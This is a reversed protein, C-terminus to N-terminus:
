ETKQRNLECYQATQKQRCLRYGVFQGFKSEPLTINLSTPPPPVVWIDVVTTGASLNEITRFSGRSLDIARKTWAEPGYDNVRCIVTRGNRRNTVRLHTGRPFTTSACTLADPEPLGLAYWSAIGSQDAAGPQKVTVTPAPAIETVRTNPRSDLQVNITPRTTAIAFALTGSCTTAITIFATRWLRHAQKKDLIKRRNAVRALHHSRKTFRKTHTVASKSHKAILKAATRTHRKLHKHGAAIHRRIHKKIKTKM